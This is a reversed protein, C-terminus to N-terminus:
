HGHRDSLSLGEWTDWTRPGRISEVVWSERLDLIAGAQAQAYILLRQESPIDFRVDSLQVPVEFYFNDDRLQNWWIDTKSVRAINSTASRSIFTKTNLFYGRFIPKSFMREWDTHRYEEGYLRRRGATGRRAKGRLDETLVMKGRSPAPEGGCRRCERAPSLLRFECRRHYPVLYYTKTSPYANIFFSLISALNRESSLWLPLLGGRAAL